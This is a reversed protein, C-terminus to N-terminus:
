KQRFSNLPKVGTQAFMYIAVRDQDEVDGVFVNTDDEEKRTLVVKPEVSAQHVVEDIIQLSRLYEEKTTPTNTNSDMKIATSVLESPFVDDKLLKSISPQTLKFVLGSPLKVLIGDRKEKLTKKIELISTQELIPTTNEPKAKSM